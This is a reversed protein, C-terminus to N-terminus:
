LDKTVAPFHEETFLELSSIKLDAKEFAEHSYESSDPVVVVNMGAERAAKMGTVSDEFVLCYEPDIKLQKSAAIFIDPFPKGRDVNEGSLIVEFTDQLGLKKLVAVIISMNSSSALALKLKKAKCLEIIYDVGSMAKGQQEVLRTVEDVIESVLEENEKGEWGIEKRWHEVVADIRLGKTSACMEETLEVGVGSFVKIEAARWLPESDVLLGDMDFIVAKIM